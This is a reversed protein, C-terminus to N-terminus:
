GAVVTELAPPKGARYGFALPSHSYQGVGPQLHALLLAQSAPLFRMVYSALWLSALCSTAPIVPRLVPCPVQVMWQLQQNCCRM